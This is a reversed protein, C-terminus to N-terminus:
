FRSNLFILKFGNVVMRNIDGICIWSSNTSVAWKSHDQTGLFSVNAVTLLVNQVNYIKFPKSCNSPLKGAGNRWTEVFLDAQLTPALWDEYLDKGFKRTKAFSTFETGKKSTIVIKNYWPPKTVTIGSVAKALQQVRNQITESVNSAYIQPENYQLQTGVKDLNELSLSICLFSQGKPFGTSPFTYKSGLPPFNPVSHVLWLGSAVDALVVGKTHGKTGKSPQNPPQDNYLVYTVNDMKSKSYFPSLTNGIISNTDNISHESFTWKTPNTSTILIHGAGEAILKVKHKLKPIKYVVFWDVTSNNEDMCQIGDVIIYYNCLILLISTMYITVDM